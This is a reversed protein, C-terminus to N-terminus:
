QSTLGLKGPHLANDNGVMQNREWMFVRGDSQTVGEAGFHLPVDATFVHLVEGVADESCAPVGHSCSHPMVGHTQLSCHFGSYPSVAGGELLRELNIKLIMQIHIKWKMVRQGFARLAMERRGLEWNEQKVM